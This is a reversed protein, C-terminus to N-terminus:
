VLGDINICVICRPKRPYGVMFSIGTHSSCSAEYAQRIHHSEYLLYGQFVKMLDYLRCAIVIMTKRWKALLRQMACCRLRCDQPRTQQERTRSSPLTIDTKPRLTQMSQPATEARTKQQFRRSM